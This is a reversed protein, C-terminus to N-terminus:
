RGRAQWVGSIRGWLAWARRAWRRVGVVLALAMMGAALLWFCLMLGAVITIAASFGNLDFLAAIGGLGLFGCAAIGWVEMWLNDFHRLWDNPERYYPRRSPTRTEPPHQRAKRVRRRVAFAVMLFMATVTLLWFALTLGLVAKVLLSASAWYIVASLGQGLVGMLVFGGVSSALIIWESREFRSLWDNSEPPPPALSGTAPVDPLPDDM